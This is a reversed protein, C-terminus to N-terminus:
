LNEVIGVLTQVVQPDFQIGSQQQILAVAEEKTQGASAGGPSVLADWADAVAFIRAALPIQEGKLGRPYGTGDWKEHRCYPIDLAPRLYHIPNLIQFAMLPRASLQKIEEETYTEKKRLIQDPAGMNGIDHLLAGRRIHPLDSAGVGMAKALMLTMETVRRTHGEGDADRLDLARSWNEITAEYAIALEMNARQVNDFMQSNDIAIAAQGALTELFELWESSPAFASRRYVELVGKVEGKAILPMCLYFHFDEEEWLRLFPLNGGIESRDSVQVAKRGFMARGAYADNFSVNAGEILKARFGRGAAFQLTNEYPNLLLIDAADVGLQQQAHGLLINMTIGMDINSAITKDIVRLSQLQELRRLSEDRLRASHIAGAAQSAFLSLLREDADTFVRQSDSTEDVALVGILIGNYLMPVEMVARLPTGEYQISRGAWNSYDDIRLPQRTQAVFGAVGEGLKLRSGSPIYPHSPHTDVTLVLEQTEADFLYMGSSAAQLFNRAAEIIFRLLDNLDMQESLARSTEYLIQMENLQQRQADELQKRETIDLITGQMRLLNGFGDMELNGLGHVWRVQGDNQRVIKYEKNFPARRGVVEEAFYSMMEEHHDPHVLELWGEVSRHYMADIGLIRDLTKSSKWTGISFDLTYSGLGAISQAERLSRESERLAEEAKVRETVDRLLGEHFLINGHEDHVYHGHDEVWIESGDKRRMRYVEIEKQGTDLIHSGREEPAFYLENKIDVQLMEEKSSYGFMRVMAPNVDVFRGDHTSRYIGDMMNDFLSRYREESERMSELLTRLEASSASLAEEARQRDTIDHIIALIAESGNYLIRSTQAEITRIEGSALKHRFIQPHNELPFSRMVAVGAQGPLPQNIQEMSITSLEALSYGYFKEAAPNVDLIRGTHPDVLLM